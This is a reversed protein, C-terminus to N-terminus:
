KYMSRHLSGLIKGGTNRKVRGLSGLVKGGTNYTTSVPPLKGVVDDGKNIYGFGGEKSAKKFEKSNFIDEAAELVSGYTTLIDKALVGNPTMANEAIVIDGSQAAQRARILPLGTKADMFWSHIDPNMRVQTWNPYKLPNEIVDKMFAYLEDYNTNLWNGNIRAITSKVEVQRAIKQAAIPSTIFEVDELLGGRGYAIPSGGSTRGDHLTVAKKGKYNWVPIDIRQSTRTGNQIFVNRDLIGTGVLKRDDISRAVDLDYIKEPMVKVPKVPLIEGSIKFQDLQSIEGRGRKFNVEQLRKRTEEPLLELRRPIGKGKRSILFDELDKAAKYVTSFKEPFLKALTEVQQGEAVKESKPLVPVDKTFVGPIEKGSGSLVKTTAGEPIVADFTQLDDVAQKIPPQEAFDTKTSQGVLGQKQSNGFYNIEVPVEKLGLAIAADIRNNGESIKPMSGYDKTIFIPEKIGNESIDKKLKEFSEDSRTTHQGRIEGSVGSYDKLKNPDISGLERRTLHDKNGTTGDFEKIFKSNIFYPNKLQEVFDTVFQDDRFLIYSNGGAKKESVRALEGLNKYKISDFGLDELMTKTLQNIHHDYVSNLLKGSNKDKKRLITNIQKAADDVIKTFQAPRLKVQANLADVFSQAQEALKIKGKPDFGGLFKSPNWNIMDTDLILPNKVNIFGKQLSPEVGTPVSLNLEKILDDYISDPVGKELVAVQAAAESMGQGMYYQTAIREIMNEATPHTGRLLINEAQGKTGIHMGLERPIRTSLPNDYRIGSFFSGNFQPSKEVSDKLFEEKTLTSPEVPKDSVKPIDDTYKQVLSVDDVPINNFEDEVEANLKTETEQKAKWYRQDPERYVKIDMAKNSPNASYFRNIINDQEEIDANKFMGLDLNEEEDLHKLFKGENDIKVKSTSYYFSNPDIFSQPEQERFNRITDKSGQDAEFRTVPRTDAVVEDVGRTLRKIFTVLGAASFGLRDEEDIFAGGAQLDYPLGTMKDIREDPEEPAQPVIVSGGKEYFKKV